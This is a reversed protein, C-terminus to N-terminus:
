PRQLKRARPGDSTRILEFEVEEGVEPIGGTVANQVFMVEKETHETEIFGHGSSPNVYAIRGRAVRTQSM